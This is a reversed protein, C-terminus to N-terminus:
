RKEFAGIIAMKDVFSIFYWSLRFLAEAASAGRASTALALRGPLKMKDWRRGYKGLRRRLKKCAGWLRQRTFWGLDMWPSMAIKQPYAFGAIKAIALFVQRNLIGDGINSDWDYALASKRKPIM